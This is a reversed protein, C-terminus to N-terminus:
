RPEGPNDILALTSEDGWFAVLCLSALAKAMKRMLRFRSDAARLAIQDGGYLFSVRKSWALLRLIKERRVGSGRALMHEVNAAVDVNTRARAEPPILHAAIGALFRRRGRPLSGDVGLTPAVGALVILSFFRRRNLQREVAEIEHFLNDLPDLDTFTM